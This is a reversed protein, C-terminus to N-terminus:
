RIRKDNRTSIMAISIATMGRPLYFSANSYINGTSYSVLANTNLVKIRKRKEGKLRTDQDFRGDGRKQHGRMLGHM